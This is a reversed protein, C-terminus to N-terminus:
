VDSSSFLLDSKINNPATSVGVALWWVTGLQTWIFHDFVSLAFILVFLYRWKTKVLCYISVWLWALGALIGPYGLQQVVVLPVNHVTSVRFQTLNYGDGLPKIHTLADQIVLGRIALPSVDREEGEPNTYHAVPDNNVSNGVYSYLRSAQGSLMLVSLAVILLSALITARRSWDKRLVVVVAMVSLVFAAEPAGSLVLAVVALGVLLWQRTHVFLAAGLLIYGTAIDFNNEFIFGGTAKIPYAFQHVIIGVSGIAAGIALPYFLSKGIIRATLYLGFLAAGMGLPAFKAQIGDATIGSIGIAGVIVLLPIWVRRDGLGNAKVQEWNNLLFFGSGLIIFIYAFKPLFFWVEGNPLTTLNTFWQNHIPSLAVGAGIAISWWKNLKKPSITM